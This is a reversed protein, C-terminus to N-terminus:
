AMLQSMLKVWWLTRGVESLSVIVGMVALDVAESDVKADRPNRAVVPIHNAAEFFNYGWLSIGSSRNM